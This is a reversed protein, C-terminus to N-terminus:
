RVPRDKDDGGKNSDKDSRDKGFKEGLKKATKLHERVVPLTDEAYKRLGSDKVDKTAQEFLAATKEHDRIAHRVYARDFDTGEHKDLHAVHDADEKSMKEPVDIKADRAAKKLADLSKGHDEVMKQAFEKVETTTARKIALEGMKVEHLNGSAAKKVFTADDLARKSEEDRAERDDAWAAALLGAAFALVLGQMTRSMASEGFSFSRAVRKAAIGTGIRYGSL